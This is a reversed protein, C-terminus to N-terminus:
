GGQPKTRVKHRDRRDQMLINIILYFGLACAGIFGIVAIGPYGLIRFGSPVRMVLASGVIIAAIILGVTLRNAIKTFAKLLHEIQNVNVGISFRGSEAQDLLRRAKRPLEIALSNLDMLASYYNRPQLKQRVRKTILEEAYERIVTQPDYNPNLRRTIGDLQLLTKALMVMEAPVQLENANAVGIVQFVIRGANAEGYDVDHYVSVMASTDRKFKDRDFGEQAEGLRMCIEAVEDGRNETVALLLKIIEDQFEGAVRAVMGFDLLVIRGEHIFVNGPHPDSHFIGDVCIQKLYARTMVAALGEYDHDITELPTIRSVKKGHILEMTLVRSTTLDRIVAPIYIEPFEALNRRFTDINRAEYLYNLENALSRRAQKVSGALNMKRAVSSHKDLFEAIESFVQMDEDVVTRVGPRQVKIVVERGDRLVAEHVQGLSATAMPTSEFDSFMKSIKAGLEEEVIEEVEAFSFPGVQDQLAELSKLYPEPVIDPRTSLVQGFKVFTPGMAKLEEAFAKAREQIEPALAQGKEDEPMAAEISEDAVDLKFDRRGYRTFLLALQAYRKFHSAQLM